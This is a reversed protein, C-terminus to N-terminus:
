VQRGLPIFADIVKRGGLQRVIYVGECAFRDGAQMREDRQATVHPVYPRRRKTTEDTMWAQRERLYQRVSREVDTFPTPQVVLNAAKGRNHGFQEQQGLEAEFDPVEALAATLESAIADSSAGLRFWPVITVHFLWDSFEQGVAVPATFACILRDGPVM